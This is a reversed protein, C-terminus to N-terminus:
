DPNFKADSPIPLRRLPSLGDAKYFPGSGFAIRAHKLRGTVIAYRGKFVLTKCLRSLGTTAPPVRQWKLCSHGSDASSSGNLSFRHNGLNFPRKRNGLAKPWLSSRNKEVTPNPDLNHSFSHVRITRQPRHM